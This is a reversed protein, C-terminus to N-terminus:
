APVRGVSAYRIGATDLTGSFAGDPDVVVPSRMIEVLQAARIEGLEPWPTMVVLADAGRAADLASPALQVADRHSEPLEAVAPDFARVTAGARALRECLEISSSRRLTSTGVKYTLGWVAIERESPPGILRSLAEDPWFQHVRNSERVGALLPTALAEDRGVAELFLIDRALTGGAFAAGPRIYARPGIRPESRLGREVESADAGTVECLRALENAFAVSTALFANIAHKSMEASRVSMWEIRAHFPALLAEITERSDGGDLGVLIRDAHIFAEIARGLRLNEPSYAVTVGRDDLLARISSSSGVPLQSSILLLSGRKLRPLALRLRELVFEVDAADDDDVPTDYALWTVDAGAVADATDTEFRLRGADIGVRLLEDLGPEAVPARGRRLNAVRAGDDDVGVVRHGANALCAATVAGLHWLGLVCVTLSRTATAPRQEEM